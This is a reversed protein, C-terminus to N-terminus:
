DHNATLEVATEPDIPNRAHFPDDRGTNVVAPLEPISDMNLKELLINLDRSQKRNENYSFSSLQLLALSCTSISGAIFGLMPLKFYGSSFSVITGVAVLVKSLTDFVQGTYKCCEKKHIIVRIEEFYLPEVLETLIRVKVSDRIRLTEPIHGKM